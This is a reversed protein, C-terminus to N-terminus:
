QSDGGGTLDTVKVIAAGRGTVLARFSKTSGERRLVVWEGKRGDSVARVVDTSVVLNGAVCYVTVKDRRHILVPEQLDGKRLIQGARLMKQAVRGTVKEIGAVPPAGGQTVWIKQIDVDDPKVIDGRRVQHKMVVVSLHKEIDVRITERKVPLGDQWVRVVVALRLSGPSLIPQLEFRYNDESLDLLDKQEEAFHFRLDSFPLGTFHSIYHAIRLRLTPKGDPNLSGDTDKEPKGTETRKRKGLNLKVTCNSGQLSVRGWNVRAHSLAGKVDEVSIKLWRSDPMVASYLQIPFDAFQKAYEGNIDAVDRLLVNDFSDVRASINLTIVDAAVSYFPFSVTFLVLIFIRFLLGTPSVSIKLKKAFYQQITYLVPM